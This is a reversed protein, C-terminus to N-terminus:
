VADENSRRKYFRESFEACNKIFVNMFTVSYHSVMMATQCPPPNMDFSRDLVTKGKCKYDTHHCEKRDQEKLGWIITVVVVFDEQSKVFANQNLDDM